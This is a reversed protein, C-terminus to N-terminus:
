ERNGINGMAYSGAVAAALAAMSAVFDLVALYGSETHTMVFGLVSVAYAAAIAVGCVMRVLGRLVIRSKKKNYM